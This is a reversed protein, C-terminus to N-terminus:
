PLPHAVEARSVFSDLVARLEDARAPDRAARDDGEAPDDGLHFLQETGRMRDQVLKWDGLVVGQLDATRVGRNSYYRHLQTFVPRSAPGEGGQIMPWLNVGDIGQTDAGAAALLTANVDILAVPERVDRGPVGPIRVFLPIRAQEEYLSTSHGRHGHEGLAEGHDATVVIMTRDALGRAALADLLAGFSADLAEVYPGYREANANAEHPDYFHVWQFWRKRDKAEDLQEIAVKVVEGSTPKPWDKATLDAFRDFGHDFDGDKHFFENLGAFPAAATWLGARQLREALMGRDPNLPVTTYVFRGKLADIQDGTLTAPDILGGKRYIMLRFDINACYRGLMLASMALATRTGQTYARRFRASQRAFAGLRPTRDAHDARLADVTVLLLNLEGPPGKADLRQDVALLPHAPLPGGSRRIPGLADLLIKGTASRALSARAGPALSPGLAVFLASALVTVGLAALRARRWAASARAGLLLAVGAALSLLGTWGLWRHVAPYLDVLARRDVALLAGGAVLSGVGLLLRARPSVAGERDVSMAATWPGLLAASAIWTGLYLAAHLRVTGQRVAALTGEVLHMSLFLGALALASLLAGARIRAGGEGAPRRALLFVAAFLGAGAGVIAPLPWAAPAPWTPALRAGALVAPPAAVVAAIAYPSLRDVAGRLPLVRALAALLPLPLSLLAAGALLALAAAGRTSALDM